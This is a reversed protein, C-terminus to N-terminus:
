CIFYFYLLHTHQSNVHKNASKDTNSCPITLLEPRLTQQRERIMM